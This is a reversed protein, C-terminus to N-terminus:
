THMLQAATMELEFVAARKGQKVACHRAINQGLVTKGMAPRAAVVILDGDQLGRTDHDLDTFGTPLGTVNEGAEYRHQLEAFWERGVDRATRLGGGQHRHVLAGLQRMLEGAITEGDEDSNAALAAVRQVERALWANLVADAYARVNRASPTNAALDLVYRSQEAPVLDSLTVADCPKGDRILDSIATYLARHNPQAFHEASLVDAVEVWAENALMLAGLVSQEAALAHRKSKTANM